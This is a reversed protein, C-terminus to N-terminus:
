PAPDSIKQMHDFVKGCATCEYEYIPM